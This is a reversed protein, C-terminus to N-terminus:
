LREVKKLSKKGKKMGLFRALMDPIFRVLVPINFSLLAKKFVYMALSLGSNTTKYEDFEPHQAFWIGTQYYRNYLQKFTYRHAHEAVAEAVYAKKYGADIVKKAYFMDESMMMHEGYGGLAIFTPRYYCAFADSAFFASLQLKEVDEQGIVHSEAGYNKNRIYYEINKKKCIQKGYAYAVEENVASALKELADNNELVVDQSIMIVVDSECYEKIAKERTLSHSFTEKEVLFYACNALKIKEITEDSDECATVPFVIKQIEVGTQANLRALFGDIVSAANYLPCVIDIKM